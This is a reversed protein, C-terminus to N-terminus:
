LQVGKPKRPVDGCRWAFVEKSRLGDKPQPWVGVTKKWRDHFFRVAEPRAPHRGCLAAGFTSMQTRSEYFNSRRWRPGSDWTAIFLTELAVPEWAGNVRAEARIESQSDDLKTFMQWTAFWWPGRGEPSLAHSFGGIVYAATLAFMLLVPLRLARPTTRTDM